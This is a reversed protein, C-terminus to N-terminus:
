RSENIMSNLERRLTSAYQARKKRKEWVKYTQEALNFLDRDFQTVEKDVIRIKEKLDSTSSHRKDRISREHTTLEKM